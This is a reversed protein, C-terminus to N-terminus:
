KLKEVIVLYDFGATAGMLHFKPIVNPIISVVDGNLNNLFGELAIDDIGKGV